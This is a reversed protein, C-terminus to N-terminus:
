AEAHASEQENQDEVVGPAIRSARRRGLRPIEYVEVLDLLATMWPGRQESKRWLSDGIGADTLASRAQESLEAFALDSLMRGRPLQDVLYRLQSRPAGELKHVGKLLGELSDLGEGLVNLPRQSLVRRDEGSGRLWDRRRVEEPDDVWSTTYVAWDVVSRGESNRFGRYRRKASAALREALEHLRHIPIKPDAIAIGVGFTLEFAQPGNHQIDSLARCLEAVFPLATDARCVVLLDDGGLMLPLLPAASSGDCAADIAAKVARRVLVRNRHFFRAREMEKSGAAKGVGNGDAYILALYRDGALGEFTRARKMAGLRTQGVLLSVLDKAQGKEARLAAKHRRSVELSVTARETGQWIPVSALGRGTWECPALVPLETSVVSGTQEIVEHDDDDDISIRFGLGPLEQRLLSIAAKVFNEAGSAFVAEFHGGDRALIGNRADTAPDDESALPDDPAASPYNGAVPALQWSGQQPQRALDPLRVRLVEGLLANAGVMARLRPVAFLWTQVRQFEIHVRKM